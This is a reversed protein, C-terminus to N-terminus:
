PGGDVVVKGGTSAGDVEGGTVVRGPDVVVVM